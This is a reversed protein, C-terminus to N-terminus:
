HVHEHEHGSDTGGPGHHVPVRLAV